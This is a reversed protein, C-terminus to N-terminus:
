EGDIRTVTQTRVAGDPETVRLQVPLWRREPALWIELRPQDRLVRQVLHRTAMAGLPTALTTDAVVEFEMIVPGDTTAVNVVIDSDFQGPSALGMGVLQLLLSAPDQSGARNPYSRGAITIATQTFTADIAAGYATRLSAAEPAVGNDTNAGTSSLAGLVGDATVTFRNGQTQWAIQATHATGDSETVQYAVTASPPMRARYRGPIAAQM